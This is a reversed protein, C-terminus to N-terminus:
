GIVCHIDADGVVVDFGAQGVGGHIFDDEDAVRLAAYDNGLDEVM